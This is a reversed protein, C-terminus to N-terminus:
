SRFALWSFYRENCDSVFKYPLGKSNDSLFFEIYIPELRLLWLAGASPFAMRCPSLVAAGVLRKLHSLQM